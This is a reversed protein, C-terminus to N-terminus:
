TGPWSPPTMPTASAPSPTSAPRWPPPTPSTSTVSAPPPSSPQPFSLPPTPAHVLPPTPTSPRTSTHQKREGNHGGGGAWGVFQDASGVDGWNSTLALILRLGADGAQAIAYDLGRFAAESYAGPGTMLATEKAVGVALARVTNFGADRATAYIDRLLASSSSYNAPLSAGWLQKAGMGMELVEWVNTGAPFFLRCGDVFGAGGDAVKIFSAFPAAAPPAPAAPPAAGDDDGGGV